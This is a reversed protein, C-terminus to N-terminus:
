GFSWNISLSSLSPGSEGVMIGYPWCEIAVAGVMKCRYKELLFPRKLKSRLKLEQKGTVMTSLLLVGHM